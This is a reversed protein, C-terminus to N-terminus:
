KEKINDLYIEFYTSFIVKLIHVVELSTLVNNNRIFLLINMTVDLMLKYNIKNSDYSQSFSNYEKTLKQLIITQSIIDSQIYHNNGFYKVRAKVNNYNKNINFISASSNEGNIDKIIKKEPIIGNRDFNFCIFLRKSHFLFKNKSNKLEFTRRRSDLSNNSNDKAEITKIKHLLSFLNVNNFKKIVKLLNENPIFKEKITNICPYYCFLLNQASVYEKKRYCEEMLMYAMNMLITIYKRFVTFESLLYYLFSPSELKNYILKLSITFLLLINCCCIDNNNLFRTKISFNEVQNEIESLSVEKIKNEELNLLQFHFLNNYEEQEM